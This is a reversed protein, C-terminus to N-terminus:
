AGVACARPYVADVAADHEAKRRAHRAADHRRRCIRCVRVAPRGSRLRWYTNEEDYVHGQACHSRVVPPVALARRRAAAQAYRCARCLRRGDPNVYLNGGGYPHGAPCHTKRAQVQGADGRAVNEAHTVAELHAPNVCRRVRCLHDLELGDPMPGRVLEWAIRHALAARGGAGGRGITGYGKANTGATWLWCEVPGLGPGVKSWFREVLTGQRGTM